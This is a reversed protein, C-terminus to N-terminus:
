FLLPPPTHGPAPCMALNLLPTPPRGIPRLMWDGMYRLDQWHGAPPPPPPRSRAPTPKLHLPSSHICIRIPSSLLLPNPAPCRAALRDGPSFGARVGVGRGLRFSAAFLRPHPVFFAGVRGHCTARTRRPGWQARRRTPSSRCRCCACSASGTQPPSSAPLAALPPPPPPSLTSALRTRRIPAPPARTARNGEYHSSLPLSRNPPPQNPAPAPRRAPCSRCLCCACSASETSPPCPPPPRPSCHM